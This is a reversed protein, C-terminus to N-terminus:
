ENYLIELQEKLEDIQEKIEEIDSEYNDAYYQRKEDEEMDETAEEYEQLLENWEDNKAAIEDRISDITPIELWALVDESDFWLLDNLETDTMGDPFMDELITELKDFYEYGAKRITEMTSVAGCWAQFESISIDCVIKM